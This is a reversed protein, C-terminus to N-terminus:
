YMLRDPKGVLLGYKFKQISSCVRKLFLLFCLVWIISSIVYIRIVTNENPLFCHEVKLEHPSISALIFSPKENNRWSFSAITYEWFNHPTQWWKKCGFHVHGGFAARPKLKKILLQTSESSLCEWKPRFKDDVTPEPALDDSQMCERDSQRYLPFHQMIIPRSYATKFDIPCKSKKSVLCQLANSVNVLQDVAKSCLACHDGEMAMSNLLVFHNGNLEVHEIGKDLGFAKSFRDVNRQSIRCFHKIKSLDQEDM